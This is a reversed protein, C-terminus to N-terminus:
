RRGALVKKLYENEMPNSHHEGLISHAAHDYGLTNLFIGLNREMAQDQWKNEALIRHFGLEKLRELVSVRAAFSCGFVGDFVPLRYRFGLGKFQDLSWLMQQETDYGFRVADGEADGSRFDVGMWSRFYRISTVDHDELFSINGKLLMSDHLVYAFDDQYEELARWVAGLVYNRNRVDLVHTNAFKGLKSLYKRDDSDSDVVVVSADPHYRRISKICRFVLPRKRTFKCPIIFM